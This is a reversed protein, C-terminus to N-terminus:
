RENSRLHQYDGWATPDPEAAAQQALEADIMTEVTEALISVAIVLNGIEQEGDAAHDLRERVIEISKKLDQYRM